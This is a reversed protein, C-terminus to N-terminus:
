NDLKRVDGDVLEYTNMHTLAPRYAHLTVAGRDGENRVDHIIDRQFSGIDGATHTLEHIGGDYDVITEWVTERLVLFCGSSGGHDHLGSSQGPGWTLLRAEIGPESPLPIRLRPEAFRVLPTWLATDAALALVISELGTDRKIADLGRTHIANATM